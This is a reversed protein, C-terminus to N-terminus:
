EKRPLKLHIGGGKKRDPIVANIVKDVVDVVIDDKKSPTLRVAVKLVKMLAYWLAILMAIGETSKLFELM